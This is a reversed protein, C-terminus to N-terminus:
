DQTFLEQYATVVTKRHVQLLLAMERSGPLSSGPTVVGDRILHILRNSIQKYVPTSGERNLEILAQYPLM